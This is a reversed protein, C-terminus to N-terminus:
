RGRSLLRDIEARKITFIHVLAAAKRENCGGRGDKQRSNVSRAVDSLAEYWDALIDWDASDWRVYRGDWSAAGLREDCLMDLYLLYDGLSLEGNRGEFGIDKLQAYLSEKIAVLREEDASLIAERLDNFYGLSIM